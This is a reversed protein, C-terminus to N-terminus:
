PRKKKKFPPRPLLFERGSDVLIAGALARRGLLVRHLMKHRSVLSLEVTREVPGLRLRTEVFLREAGHGSASRVRQRRTIDHVFERSVDGTRRHLRIVFRVRGDDLDDIEACDIAGTAAGTDLKVTMRRVHWDPFAAKERWGAITLPVSDPM